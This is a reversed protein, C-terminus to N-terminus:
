DLSDIMEKIKNPYKEKLKSLMNADKILEKVLDVMNRQAMEQRNFVKKLEAEIQSALFM